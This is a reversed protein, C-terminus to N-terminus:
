AEILRGFALNDTALDDWVGFGVIRGAEIILIRDCRQVTTLRHAILIVTKEGPLADISSM